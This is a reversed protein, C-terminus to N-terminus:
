NILNGDFTVGRKPAESIYVNLPLREHDDPLMEVQGGVWRDRNTPLTSDDELSVCTFCIM